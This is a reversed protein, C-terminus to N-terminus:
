SSWNTVRCMNLKTNLLVAFTMAGAIGDQGNISPDWIDPLSRAVRAPWASLGSRPPKWFGLRGFYCRRSNLTEGGHHWHWYHMVPEWTPNVDLSLCFLGSGPGRISCWEPDHGSNGTSTFLVTSYPDKLDKDLFVVSSMVNISRGKRTNRSRGAPQDM